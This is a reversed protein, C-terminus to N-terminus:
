NAKQVNNALKVAQQAKNVNKALGAGIAGAAASFAISGLSIDHTLATSFDDGNVMNM